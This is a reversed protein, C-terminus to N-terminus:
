SDWDRAKDSPVLNDRSFLLGLTRLPRICIRIWVIDRDGAWVNVEVWVTFELGSRLSGLDWIRPSRVSIVSSSSLLVAM